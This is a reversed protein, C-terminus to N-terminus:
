DFTAAPAVEPLTIRFDVGNGPESTVSISGSFVKIVLNHVIHLGLGSGGSGRKTTFFPEFIRRISDPPIGVGDDHYRMVIKKNEEHVSIHINGERGDPFAHVLSNDILNMLVQFLAGPYSDMEISPLCEVTIHHRTKKIKPALSLLAENIYAALNFHRRESSSQDVAVQKFSQVLEAARHLHSLVMESAEKAVLAYQDLGEPALKGERRLEQLEATRWQLTSAATVAIGIPTNVEHAIGAVLAGLSSLKEAQVLQDQAEHLRTLALTTEDVQRRLSQNLEILEEEHQKRETTDRMVKSFGILAGRDDRMATIIIDAWFTSGDKRIRWGQIEIKERAAAEDLDKAPLGSARDENNYFRSFHQGLIEDELYGKLRRAGENWSDINGQVDLTFMAYGKVSSMAKRESIDIISALVFMGEDTEISNLGIEVPVGQGDKTLGFLDRGAGMARTQPDVFYDDRLKPHGVRVSQPVLMEIPQGVLEKRPYRFLKEAQANVLTILGDRNVMIMANPAAEVIQRFLEERHDPLLATNAAETM